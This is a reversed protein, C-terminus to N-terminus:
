LPETVQESLWCCEDVQKIGKIYGCLWKIGVGTEEKKKEKGM